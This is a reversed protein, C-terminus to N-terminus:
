HLWTPPNDPDVAVIADPADELRGRLDQGPRDRFQVVLDAHIAERFPQRARLAPVDFTYRDSTSAEADLIVTIEPLSDLLKVTPLKQGHIGVLASLHRLLDAEVREDPPTLTVLEAVRLVSRVFAEQEDASMPRLSAGSEDTGVLSNAADTHARRHVLSHRLEKTEVYVEMLASWPQADVYQPRGEAAAAHCAKTEISYGRRTDPQFGSEDLATELLLDLVKWAAGVLLPRLRLLEVCGMPTPGLTEGVSIAVQATNEALDITARSSGDSETPILPLARQLLDRELASDHEFETWSM